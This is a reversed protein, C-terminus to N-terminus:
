WDGYTSRMKRAGRIRGGAAGDVKLPEAPLTPQVGAATGWAVAGGTAGGGFTPQPASGEDSPLEPPAGRRKRIRGGRQNWGTGESRQEQKGAWRAHAEDAQYPSPRKPAAPPPGWGPAARGAPRGRGPPGPVGGSFTRHLYASLQVSDSLIDYAESVMQFRRVAETSGPNKDPHLAAALKRFARSLDADSAGRELGLRRWMDPQPAAPGDGVLVDEVTPLAADGAAQPCEAEGQGQQSDGQQADPAAM